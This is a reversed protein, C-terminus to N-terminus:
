LNELIGKLIKLAINQKEEDLDQLVKSIAEYTIWGSVIYDLSTDLIESISTLTDISAGRKGKEIATITKQSMGILEAMAEQTLGKKERLGKIRKGSEILDYYM